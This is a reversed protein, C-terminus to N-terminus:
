KRYCIKCLYAAISFNLRGSFEYVSFSCFLLFIRFFFSLKNKITTAKIESAEVWVMRKLINTQVNEYLDHIVCPKHNLKQCVFNCECLCFHIIQCCFPDTESKNKKERLSIYVNSKLFKNFMQTPLDSYLNM